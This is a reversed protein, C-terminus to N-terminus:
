KNTEQEMPKKLERELFKKTELFQNIGRFASMYASHTILQKDDMDWPPREDGIFKTLCDKKNKSRM